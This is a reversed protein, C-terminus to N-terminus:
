KKKYAENPRSFVAIVEGYHGPGTLIKIDDHIITPGDIGLKGIWKGNPLQLAYHRPLVTNDNYKEGLVVLKQKGDELGLNADGIRGFDGIRAIDSLNKVQKELVGFPVRDLPLFSFAGKKWDYSPELAGRVFGACDWVNDSGIGLPGQIAYNKDTLKKFYGKKQREEIWKKAAM